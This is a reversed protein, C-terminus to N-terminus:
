SLFPVRPPPDPPEDHRDTPRKRYSSVLAGADASPLRATFRYPLQESKGAGSLGLEKSSGCPCNCTLVAKGGQKKKRCCAPVDEEDHGHEHKMRNLWCCCSHNARREPSCGCIDCDGACEGTIAHAVRPSKLALAALASMTILLYIVLLLSTVISRFSLKM